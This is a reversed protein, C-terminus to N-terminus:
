ALIEKHKEDSLGIYYKGNFPIKFLSSLFRM